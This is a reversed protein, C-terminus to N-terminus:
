SEILGFPKWTERDSTSVYDKVCIWGSYTGGVPVSNFLIDGKKPQREVSPYLELVTEDEVNTPDTSISNVKIFEDYNDTAALYYGYEFHIAGEVDRGNYTAQKGALSMRVLGQGITNSSSLHNWNNNSHNLAMLWPTGLEGNLRAQFNFLTKIGPSGFLLETRLDSESLKIKDYNLLQLIGKLDFTGSDKLIFAAGGNEEPLRHETEVSGGIVVGQRGLRSPALNDSHCGIFYSVNVASDHLGSWYNGEENGAAYCGLYTNGLNSDDFFGFKGNNICSVAQAMGANADLNFTYIGHGGCNQITSRFVRWSSANTSVWPYNHNEHFIKLTIQFLVNVDLDVAFSEGNITYVLEGEYKIIVTQNGIQTNANGGDYRLIFQGENETVNVGNIGDITFVGGQNFLGDLLAADDPFNTVGNATLVKKIYELLFITIDIDVQLDRQISFLMQPKEPKVLWPHSANPHKANPPSLPTGGYLSSLEQYGEVNAFIHIGNEQFNRIECDQITVLNTHEVVGHRLESNGDITVKEIVSGVSTSSGKLKDIILDKQTQSDIYAPFPPVFQKFNGGILRDTGPHHFIIGDQPVVYRDSPNDKFISDPNSHISLITNGIGEGLIHIGRLVQMTAGMFYTGAPFYLVNGSIGGNNKNMTVQAEYFYPLWDLLVNQNSANKWTNLFDPDALDHINIM